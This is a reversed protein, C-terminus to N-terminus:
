TFTFSGPLNASQGDHNVVTVGVLGAGLMTPTVCTITTANVWVVSTAAYAGFMVALQGQLFLTGTISVATGGLHTGTTVNLYSITPAIQTSVQAIPGVITGDNAVLDVTLDAGSYTGGTKIYNDREIFYGDLLLAPFYMESGKAPMAGWVGDTIGIEEVGALAINWPEEGLVGGPPTYAPDWGQTTQHSLTKYIASLIPYIAEMQAATLPPLAYLVSFPVHDGEYSATEQTSKASKRWVGLLPFGYQEQRLYREPDYSCTSVVAATVPVGAASAAAILRAGAFQEIEFQFYDRLYFIAPDADQLLTNISTAPLPLAVAGRQFAGYPVTTM